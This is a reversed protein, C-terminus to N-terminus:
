LSEMFARDGWVVLIDGVLTDETIIRGVAECWALYAQDNVPRREIKGNENCFAVVKRLVGGYEYTTFYPVIQAYGGVARQLFELNLPAEHQRILKTGDARLLVTTGNM